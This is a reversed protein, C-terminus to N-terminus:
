HKFMAAAGELSIVVGIASSNAALPTETKNSWDASADSFDGGIDGVKVVRENRGADWVLVGASLIEPPCV